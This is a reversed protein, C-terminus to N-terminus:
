RSHINLNTVNQKIQIDWRGSPLLVPQLVVDSSPMALYTGTSLVDVATQIDHMPVRNSILRIVFLLGGKLAVLSMFASILMKLADLFNQRSSKAVPVFSRHAKILDM